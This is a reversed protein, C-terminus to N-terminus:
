LWILFYYLGAQSAPNKTTLTMTFASRLMGITISPLWFRTRSALLVESTYNQFILDFPCNLFTDILATSLACTSLLKLKENTFSPSLLLRLIKISPAKQTLDIKCLTKFNAWFALFLINPHSSKDNKCEQIKNVQSTHTENTVTVTAHEVSTSNVPTENSFTNYDRRLRPAPTSVTRRRKIV